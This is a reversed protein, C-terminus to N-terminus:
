AITKSCNECVDPTELPFGIKGEMMRFMNTNIELVSKPEPEVSQASHPKAVPKPTECKCQNDQFQRQRLEVACKKCQVQHLEEHSKLDKMICYFCLTHNCAPYLHFYYKVAEDIGLFEILFPHPFFQSIPENRSFNYCLNCQELEDTFFFEPLHTEQNNM